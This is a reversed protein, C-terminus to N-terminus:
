TAEITGLQCFTGGLIADKRVEKAASTIELYLQSGKIYRNDDGPMGSSNNAVSGKVTAALSANDIAGIYYDPSAAVLHKLLPMGGGGCGRGSLGNAMSGPIEKAPVWKKDSLWHYNWARPSTVSDSRLYDRGAMQSNGIMLYVIFKEKPINTAGLLINSHAHSSAALAPLMAALIISRLDMRNAAEMVGGQLIPIEGTM